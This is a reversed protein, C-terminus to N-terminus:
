PCPFDAAFIAYDKFNVVGDQSLDAGSCWSNLPQCGSSLWLDGIWNYDENDTDGDGDADGVCSSVYNISDSYSISINGAKDKYQVYTTKLGLDSTGGFASLDWNNKVTSYAEWSSWTSNNNSFRMQSVGSLTDSASLDLTVILSSTEPDGGNIQISGIPDKTDFVTKDDGSGSPIAEFWGANDKARTGFYYIDDGSPVFNFTGSTSAISLGSYTWVGAGKKYYLYVTDIGSTADGATFSVPIPSSNDYSPSTCSSYPLTTDYVTSDDGGAPYTELNNANDQARSAFYYTGDGSVPTYNVVGNLSTSFIGTYTWIGAAGKKYWFDVWLLGSSPAPDTVNFSLPISGGTDLPPSTLTSSPTLTDYFTTDEAVTPIAEWNGGIDVSRVAFQYLGNVGPTYNFTGATGTSNHGYYIFSGSGPTKVYLYTRKVGTQTDSATWNVPIPSSNAYTPSTCSSTPPTTEVIIAVGTSTSYTYLEEYCDSVFDLPLWHTGAALGSTTLSFTTAQLGGGPTITPLVQSNSGVVTCGAIDNLTLTNNHASVGGNNFIRVIVDFTQAPGVWNPRTYNRSFTPPDVAAFNEETALAYSESSAGDFSM